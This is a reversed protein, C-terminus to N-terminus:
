SPARIAGAAQEAPVQIKTNRAARAAAGLDSRRWVAPRKGMRYSWLPCTTRTCKRIEAVSGNSCTRCFARICDLPLDPGHGLARLEEESMDDPHRGILEGTKPDIVLGLEQRPDTNM